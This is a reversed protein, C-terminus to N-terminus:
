DTNVYKGEMNKKCCCSDQCVCQGQSMYIQKTKLLADKLGAFGIHSFMFDIRLFFLELIADASTTKQM